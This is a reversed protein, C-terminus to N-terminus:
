NNVFNKSKVTTCFAREKCLFEEITESRSGGWTCICAGKIIRKLNNLNRAKKLKWDEM